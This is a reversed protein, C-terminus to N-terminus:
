VAFREKWVILSASVSTKPKLSLTKALLLWENAVTVVTISSNTKSGAAEFWMKILAFPLWPSSCWWCRCIAHVLCTFIVAVIFRVIDHRGEGGGQDSRCGTCNHVDHIWGLFVRLSRFRVTDAPKRRNLERQTTRESGSAKDNKVSTGTSSCLRVAARVARVPLCVWRM